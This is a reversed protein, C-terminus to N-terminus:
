QLLRFIIGLSFFISHLKGVDTFNPSIYHIFKGPEKSTCFDHASITMLASLYSISVVSHNCVVVSFILHFTISSNEPNKQHVSFMVSDNTCLTFKCM